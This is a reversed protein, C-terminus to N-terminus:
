PEILGQAIAERCCVPCLPNGDGPLNKSTRGSLYSTGLVIAQGFGTKCTKSVCGNRDVIHVGTTFSLTGWQRGDKATHLM